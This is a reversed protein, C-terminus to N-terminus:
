IVNLDRLKKYLMNGIVTKSASTYHVSDALLQPPVTGTAIADLDAQTATLGADDLGYCSIITTGDMDYIPAALYERLSIFYRGFEARMAAEYDARLAASGSSLGLVVTHTARAHEIMRRHQLILDANSAYGGNQGIFIIQIGANRHMDFNTRIATPRTIPVADGAVSRTFVWNGTMDAYNSGTWALVGEVEGIQCPNVHGGGQLLPTVTSGLITKIGGDVDRDAILVPTTTAPITINNVFMVDGGQRAVITKANEGGTGGNYVPLGTLAALTTTWGGGATLSDGWCTIYNEAGAGGLAILDERLSAAETELVALRPVVDSVAAATMITSQSQTEIDLVFTSIRVDGSTAAGNFRVIVYGAQGRGPTAYLDAYDAFDFDVYAAFDNSESLHVNAYELLYSPNWDPGASVVVDPSCAIDSRVFVRIRKTAGETGYDTFIRAAAYAYSGAVNKITADYGIIKGSATYTSVIESASDSGSLKSAFVNELPMKVMGTQNFRLALEESLQPSLQSAIVHRDSEFRPQITWTSTAASVNDTSADYRALLVFLHDRAEYDSQYESKVIADYINFGAGGAFSGAFDAAVIWGPANAPSWSGAAKLVRLTNPAFGAVTIADLFFQRDLDTIDGYSIKLYVGYFTDAGPATAVKTITIPEDVAVEAVTTGVTPKAILGNGTSFPNFPEYGAGQAVVATGSFGKGSDIYNKSPYTAVLVSATSNTRRYESFAVDGSGVVRFYANDAVAARGTAEDPYTESNLVAIDAASQALQQVSQLEEKTARSAIEESLPGVGALQTSLDVIKQRATNGNRNVILEDALPASQLHTTTYGNSM